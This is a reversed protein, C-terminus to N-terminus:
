VLAQQEREDLIKECAKLVEQSKPFKYVGNLTCSLFPPEIKYGQQRLIELMDVQKMGLKSMRDKIIM